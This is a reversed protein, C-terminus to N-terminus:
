GQTRDELWKGVQEEADALSVAPVFCTLMNDRDITIDFPIVGGLEFNDPVTQVIKYTQMKMAKEILQNAMVAATLSPNM